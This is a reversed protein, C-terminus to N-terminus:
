SVRAFSIKKNYSPPAQQWYSLIMPLVQTTIRYYCHYLRHLTFVAVLAAKETHNYDTIALAMVVSYNSLYSLIKQNTYFLCRTGM